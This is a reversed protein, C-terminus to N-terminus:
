PNYFKSNRVLELVESEPVDYWHLYAEAVAFRWVNRINPCMIEDVENELRQVTGQPATPVAVYIKSPNYTKVMKIAALM